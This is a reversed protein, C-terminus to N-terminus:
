HQRPFAILIVYESHTIPAMQIWCAIHMYKITLQPRERERGRERSYNEVDDRLPFSKWLLIISCLIHTKVAGVIKTQFTDRELFFEAVYYWLHVSTNMYLVPQEHLTGTTWTFYRNNEDVWYCNLRKSFKRCIRLYWIEYFYTWHCVLQEMRISPPVYPCVHRPCM